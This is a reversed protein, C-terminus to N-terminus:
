VWTAVASTSSATSSAATASKFSASCIASYLDFRVPPLAMEALQSPNWASIILRRSSPNRKIENIVWQLQDIGKGTYDANRDVYPANWHRWQFGYVPGLDGAERDIGISNM